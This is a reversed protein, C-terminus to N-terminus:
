KRSLQRCIDLDRQTQEMESKYKEILKSCEEMTMKVDKMKFLAQKTTKLELHTQIIESYMTKRFTTDETLISNQIDALEASIIQQLYDSNATPNDMSDILLKVNKVKGIVKREQSIQTEFAKIKGRLYTNEKIPLRYGFFIALVILSVTITFLLMYKLFAINRDKSNQPKM